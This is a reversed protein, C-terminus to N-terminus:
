PFCLCGAQLDVKIASVAIIKAKFGSGFREVLYQQCSFNRMLEVDIRASVIPFVERLMNRCRQFEVGPCKRRRIREARRGGSSLVLLAFPPSIEGGFLNFSVAVQAEM